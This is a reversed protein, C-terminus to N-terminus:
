VPRRYRRMFARSREMRLQHDIDPAALSVDGDSTRALVITDGLHLGLSAQAEPPLRVGLGADLKEVKLTIM